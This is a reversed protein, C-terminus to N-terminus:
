GDTWDPTLGGPSSQIVLAKFRNLPPWITCDNACLMKRLNEQRKTFTPYSHFLLCKIESNCGVGPSVKRKLGEVKGIMNDISKLADEAALAGSSSGDALENSTSQVANLERELNKQSTRFIKRYNEYPVQM